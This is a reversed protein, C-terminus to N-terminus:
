TTTQLAAVSAGNVLTATWGADVLAAAAGANLLTAVWPVVTADLVASGVPAAVTGASTSDPIVATAYTHTPPIVIANALGSLFVAGAVTAPVRATVAGGITVVGAGTAAARVTPAGSLTVSGAPAIRITVTPTGGLTVLGAATAPAQVTPASSLTVSGAATAQSAATATGGLTIAGSSSSGPQTATAAGGLTVTGSATAVARAVPAGGLTVLGASTVPAAASATGGLSIGGGTTAAPAKPAASGGLSVVGSAVAPARAAAAGGISVVGAAAASVQATASGGLTVTGTATVPAAATASGGMTIAGAATAPAAPVQSTTTGGLSISGVVPATSAARLAITLISSRGVPGTMNVDPAFTGPTYVTAAYMALIPNNGTSQVYGQALEVMNTSTWDDTLVGTTTLAAAFALVMDGPTATTISPATVIGTASTTGAPTTVDEIVPDVGRLAVIYGAMRQATGLTVTTTSGAVDAADAYRYFTRHAPGPSGIPWNPELQTWTPGATVTATTASSALHLILLDGVQCSTPSTINHPGTTVTEGSQYVPGTAVYQISGSASVPAQATTAGGLTISGSAAAPAQAAPSGGLSIGGATASAPATTSVSGGLTVSGSADSGSPAGGFPRILRPRAALTRGLRAM